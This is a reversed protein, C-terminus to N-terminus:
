HKKAAAAEVKKHFEKMLRLEPAKLGDVERGRGM